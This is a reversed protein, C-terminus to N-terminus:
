SFTVLNLAAIVSVLVSITLTFLSIEESDALNSPM